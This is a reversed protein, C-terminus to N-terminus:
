SGPMAVRLVLNSAVRGLLMTVIAPVAAVGLAAKMNLTRPAIFL